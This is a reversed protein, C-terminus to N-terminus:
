HSVGQEINDASILGVYALPCFIEDINRISDKAQPMM